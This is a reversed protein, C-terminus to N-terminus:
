RAPRRDLAAGLKKMLPKLRAPAKVAEVKDIRPTMSLELRYGLTSAARVLTHLTISTNEEDLVRDIASRSTGLERALSARSTGQRALQRRLGASVVRKLASAERQVNRELLAPM